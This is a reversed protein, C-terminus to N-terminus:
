GPFRFCSFTPYIGRLRTVNHLTVRKASSSNGIAQGDGVYIETHAFRRKRDSFYMIIDGPQMRRVNEETLVLLGPIARVAGAKPLLRLYNPVYRYESGAHTNSPLATSPLAGVDELVQSVFSACAVNADYYYFTSDSAHRLLHQSREVIRQATPGSGIAPLRGSQLADPATSTQNASSSFATESRTTAINSDVLRAYDYDWDRTQPLVPFGRRYDPIGDRKLPPM